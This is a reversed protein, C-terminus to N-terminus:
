SLLNNFMNTREIIPAAGSYSPSTRPFVTAGSDALVWDCVRSFIHDIETLPTIDPTRDEAEDYKPLESAPFMDGYIGGNCQESIVMMVNGQGHDTGNDGNDRIQRGFEGAAVVAINQRSQSSLSEWLASLGGHLASPTAPQNGYRGGFIDRIGGEIGRDIYPNNPDTNLLENYPRQQSHTDWGGYEMSLVRPKFSFGPFEGPFTSSAHSELDSVALIDYLNRIQPGFNYSRLIKRANGFDADNQNPEPNVPNGNISIGEYLAQILEPVPVTSLRDSMLRGFKRVNEEHQLAKDYVSPLNEQKLAAYYSKSTRAMKEKWSNYYSYQRDRFEAEFLGIERSNEVAILDRNDIQNPDYNTQSGLPGFTFPSPTSTLAIANGNVSRALRGGWGSRDADNLGSSLNGQQLMLSSLDHARNTGGVANFIFAVNGARFMDILWGAQKLIGFTVGDNIDNIDVLGNVWQESTDGVTIHFYDDNWREQASQNHENLNHSRQRNSWYKQGFSGPVASYAPVILHRMDPGGDLFLDVLVKDNLTAPMAMTPSSLKPLSGCTYLLSSYLATELFRRRQHNIKNM